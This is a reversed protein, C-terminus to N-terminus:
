RIHPAGEKYTGMECMRDTHADERVYEDFAESGAREQIDDNDMRGAYADELRESEPYPFDNTWEFERRVPSKPAPAKKRRVIMSTEHFHCDLCLTRINALTDSGGEALPIIHDAEWLSSNPFKAARRGLAHILVASEEHSLKNLCSYLVSELTACDARCKQCIGRDRALVLKRFSKRLIGEMLLGSTPRTHHCGVAELM